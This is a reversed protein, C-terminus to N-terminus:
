PENLTKPDLKFPEFGSKKELTEIKTSENIFNRMFLLAKLLNSKGSANAGFIVASKLLKLNVGSEPKICHTDEMEDNKNAIMSLQQKGKFSLFNEVEFRILM